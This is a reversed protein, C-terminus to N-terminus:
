VSGVDSDAANSVLGRQQRLAWNEFAPVIRVYFLVKRNHFLFSKSGALLKHDILSLTLYYRQRM